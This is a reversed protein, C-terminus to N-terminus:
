FLEGKGFKIGEDLGEPREFRAPLVSELFQNGGLEKIVEGCAKLSEPKSVGDLAGGFEGEGKLAEVIEKVVDPSKHDFVWKAGLGKVQELNASGATAAVDYGSARAMQLACAGVSGSAGWVLLTKGLPKRPVTPYPLNLNDKQYLGAAATNMGMGFVAAEAFSTKDAIKGVLSAKTASYLQFAGNSAKGAEIVDCTAVVRDGPKLHTVSSGVATIIGASDSGLVSPYSKILRDMDQMIIDVPNIAM